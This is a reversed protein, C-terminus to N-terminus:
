AVAGNRTTVTRKHCVGQRQPSLNCFAQPSPPESVHPTKEKRPM